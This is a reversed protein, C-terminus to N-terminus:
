HHSQNIKAELLTYYSILFFEYSSFEYASLSSSIAKIAYFEFSTASEDETEMDSSLWEMEAIDLVGDWEGRRLKTASKLISSHGLSFYGEINLFLEMWSSLSDSFESYTSTSFGTNRFFLSPSLIFTIVIFAFVM